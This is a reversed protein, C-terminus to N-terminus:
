AGRDVEAIAARFSDRSLVLDPAAGDTAAAAIRRAIAAM